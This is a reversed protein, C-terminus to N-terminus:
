TMIKNFYLSIFFNKILSKFNLYSKILLFFNILICLVLYIDDPSLVFFRIERILTLSDKIFCKVDMRSGGLRQQVVGFVERGRPLKIRSIEQQIKEQAALEEKKKSM